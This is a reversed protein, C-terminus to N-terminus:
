MCVHGYIDAASLSPRSVKPDGYRIMLSAQLAVALREAIERAARQVDPSIGGSASAAGLTSRLFSSLEGLHADFASDQGRCSSIEKMLAPLASPAARLIDLCMVNGSGEWIANLPSSRFIRAM